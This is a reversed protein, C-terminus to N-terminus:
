GPWVTPQFRSESGLRAVRSWDYLPPFEPSTQDPLHEKVAVSRIAKNGKVARATAVITIMSMTAKFRFWVSVTARVRNALTAANASSNTTKRWAGYWAVVSSIM